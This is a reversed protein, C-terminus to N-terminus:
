ANEEGVSRDQAPSKSATIGFYEDDYNTMLATSVPVFMFRFDAYPTGLDDLIQNSLDLLADQIRYIKVTPYPRGRTFGSLGCSHATGEIELPIGYARCTIPRFTYLKCHDKDDLLPCRIREKGVRVFIEKNEEQEAVKSLNRKLVHYKRDAKDADILIDYRDKEDLELFKTNIYLAEILSIDFLAHCCDSCQPRCVVEAPFDALVKQFVTDVQHVLVEYRSFYSSLDLKIM